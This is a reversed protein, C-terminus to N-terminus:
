RRPPIGRAESISLEALIRLFQRGEEDAAEYSRRLNEIQEDEEWAPVTFGDRPQDPLLSAARKWAGDILRWTIFGSLSARRASGVATLTRDSDIWNLDRNGFANAEQAAVIRAVSAAILMRLTADSQDHAAVIELGSQHEGGVAETRVVRCDFALQHGEWELSLVGTRDAELPGEHQIMVGVLGLDVVRVVAGDFLAPIPAPLDLRQFRRREEPIDSM